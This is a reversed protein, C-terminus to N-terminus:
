HLLYKLMIQKKSVFILVKQDKINFVIYQRKKDFDTFYEYDGMDVRELQSYSKVAFLMMLIFFVLKKM